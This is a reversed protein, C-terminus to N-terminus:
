GPDGLIKKRLKREMRRLKGYEQWRAENAEQVKGPADEGAM